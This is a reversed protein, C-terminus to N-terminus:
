AIVKKTLVCYFKIGDGYCISQDKKLKSLDVRGSRPIKFTEITHTKGYLSEVKVLISNEKDIEIKTM